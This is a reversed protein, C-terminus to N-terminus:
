QTKHAFDEDQAFGKRERRQIMAEIEPSFRMHEGQISKDTKEWTQYKEERYGKTLVAFIKKRPEATVDRVDRKLLTNPVNIGSKKDKVFGMCGFVNGAVKESYLRPGNGIFNGIMTANRCISMMDIIIDM